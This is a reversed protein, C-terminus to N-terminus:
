DLTGSKKKLWELEVKLQGIQQYLYEVEAEPEKKRGRKGEFLEEARKVLEGRWQSVQVPHVGHQRGLESLTKVGKVAELAVKAKFKGSRTKKGIM